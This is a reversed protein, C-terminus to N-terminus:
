DCDAFQSNYLDAYFGNKQLLEEHDGQEVVDGDRLVLILDANQITSLRHAIVFTTRGASAKDMSSQILKETRTDVNSTAEDLIMMPSNKVMARAITLLQRQGQSLSDEGSIVTDYGDPFRRIFRDAGIQKGVEIVRDDPVDATYKINEMITGQFTWPDQLVMAFSSHVSARNVSATDVGNIKIVGSQQDYFRMLVSVITSKGAGTPGVIAVKWGPEVHINLDHIVPKAPDYGFRLHDIDVSGQLSSTRQLYDNMVSGTILAHNDATIVEKSKVPEGADEDEDKSGSVTAAVAAASQPTENEHKRKVSDALGSKGSEDEMEPEALMNFVREGGAAARQLNQFAQALQSLPQTFLRVYMIFAVIVGFTIKDQMAMWAGVVCVSVYGLNGVFNMIPMMLGSLFQSKWASDYLDDNLEDFRGGLKNEAGYAKVALQSSYAEEVHGNVAGLGIQQRAFFKQSYKMVVMMLILGIISSGIAVLALQWSNKFMMIVSGVLMTVSTVISGLSQSLSQGVADVDNTLRSLVDGISTGDLWKLPLRDIKASVDKRMQRAIKQTAGALIYSQIWSLLAGSAYLFVLVWGIRAVADMDVDALSPLANTHKTVELGKQIENTMDKLRDPGVIQLAAGVSGLVLAVIMAPIWKYAYKLLSRVFGGFSEPHAAAGGSHGMPGMPVGARKMENTDTGAM